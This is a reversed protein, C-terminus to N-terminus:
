NSHFPTTERKWKLYMWSSQKEEECNNFIIAFNEDDYDNFENENVNEHPIKSKEEHFFPFIAKLVVWFNIERLFTSSRSLKLLLKEEEDCWKIIENKWKNMKKRGEVNRFHKLFNRLKIFKQLTFDVDQFSISCM